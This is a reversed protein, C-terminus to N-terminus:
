APFHDARGGATRAGVRLAACGGVLRQFCLAFAVGARADALPCARLAAFPYHAFVAGRARVSGCICARTRLSSRLRADFPLTRVPQQLSM